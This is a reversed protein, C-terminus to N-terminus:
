NSGDKPPEMLLHLVPDIVGQLSYYKADVIIFRQRRAILYEFEGVSNTVQTFDLVAMGVPLKFELLMPRTGRGARKEIFDEEAIRRESSTSIFGPYCYEFGIFQAAEAHLSGLVVIGCGHGSFLSGESTVEFKGIASTINKFDAACRQEFDAYGPHYQFDASRGQCAAHLMTAESEYRQCAQQEAELLAENRRVRLAM